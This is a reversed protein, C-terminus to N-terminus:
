PRLRTTTFRFPAGFTDDPDMLLTDDDRALVGIGKSKLYREAQDLDRVSYTMAHVNDGNKQLDRGALSDDDIPTALEVVTQSGVAVCVNRTGTLKSEAEAIPEGRLVDVFIREARDMRGTLVTITELGILGLPHNTAWWESNWGPFMRSDPLITGNRGTRDNPPLQFFELQVLSDKPHTYLAHETPRVGPPAVDTVTRMEAATFADWVAGVDDVYWAISHWHRGFRGLFRGSPMADAGEEPAPAMTEIISDAIVLLSADRKGAPSYNEDMMGRRPFFVDDYWADLPKLADSMHIVHFLEGINFSM